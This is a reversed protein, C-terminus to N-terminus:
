PTIGSFETEDLVITNVIVQRRFDDDGAAEGGCAEGGEAADGSDALGQWQVIVRLTGSRVLSNTPTFIICGRPNILSGAADGDITETAGDLAQEWTWLDHEALEAADCSAANCDPSPQTSISGGGLPAALGLNYTEVGAPNIRIREVIADALNIARTRQIGQHMASKSMILLSIIGLIGVTLVVFAILAEILTFGRQARYLQTLNRAPLTVVRMM